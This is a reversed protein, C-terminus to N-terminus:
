GFIGMSNKSIKIGKKHKDIEKKESIVFKDYDKIMESLNYSGALKENAGVKSHKLNFAAIGDRTHRNGNSLTVNRESLSHKKFTENSFDFQTAAIQTSVDHVTGGLTTVKRKLTGLFESPANSKIAKGFRKKSRCRGTKPNVTTEKARKAMSAINCNEVYFVDGMGLLRNSLSNQLRKRELVYRRCIESHKNRLKYYNKSYVWPKRKDRSVIRGKEDYNEPNTARRSRDMQRELKILEKEYEKKKDVSLADLSLENGYTAVMSMGIDVGVNGKGLKRMKNYPTGKLTIQLEYKVKGRITKRVITGNAFMHKKILDIAYADYESGRSIIPIILKHKGVTIIVNKVNEDFDMGSLKKNSTKYRTTISKLPKENSKFSIHKGEGWLKKEWAAWANIGIDESMASNLYPYKSGYRSSLIAIYGKDGNFSKSIVGKRQSKIDIKFNRIFDNKEKRTEANKYANHSIIFKYTNLMQRQIDNYLSTAQNFMENLIHEQATNTKLCNFTYVFRGENDNKKNAM